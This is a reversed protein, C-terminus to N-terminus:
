LGDAEKLGDRLGEILGEAEGDILGEIEGDALGDLAEPLGVKSVVCAEKDPLETWFMVDVLQLM